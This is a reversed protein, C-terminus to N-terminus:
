ELTMRPAAEALAEAWDDALAKDAPLIGTEGDAHLFCYAFSKQGQLTQVIHLGDIQPVTEVAELLDRAQRMQFSGAVRHNEALTQDGLDLTWASGERGCTQAPIVPSVWRQTQCHLVLLAALCRDHRGRFEAGLGTLWCHLSMPLCPFEFPQFPADSLNTPTVMLDGQENRVLRITQPAKLPLPDPSEENPDSL